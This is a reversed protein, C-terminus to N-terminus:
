FLFHALDIWIPLLLSSRPDKIAWLDSQQAMSRELRGRLAARFATTAPASLWDAPLPEVGAASPWWRDLDILLREQLAVVDAWEFYGSPNHQDGAIVDGPLAVGLRELVGALLSTGSRHMGLVLLLPATSM